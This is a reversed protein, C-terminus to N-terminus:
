QAPRDILRANTAPGAARARHVRGLEDVLVTVELWWARHEGAEARAM